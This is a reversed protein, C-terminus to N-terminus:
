PKPQARKRCSPHLKPHCDGCGEHEYGLEFVELGMRRHLWQSVMGRHCWKDGPQQPEYCLLTASRGAALELLEDVVREPDLM